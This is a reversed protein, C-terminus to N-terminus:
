CSLHADETALAVGVILIYSCSAVLESRRASIRRRIYHECTM